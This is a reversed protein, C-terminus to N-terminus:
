TMVAAVIPRESGIQSDCDLDSHEEGRQEVDVPSNHRDGSM